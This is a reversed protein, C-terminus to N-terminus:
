SGEVIVIEGIAFKRRIEAAAQYEPSHYCSLATAFSDFEIVVQRSRASGEVAENRGGRIVFRAGFKEYAPRARELYQTYNAPDTVDINAIWYGKAM